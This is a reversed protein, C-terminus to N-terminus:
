RGDANPIGKLTGDPLTLALFQGGHMGNKLPRIVTSVKMGPTLTMPVWGQRALSSPAGLEIAWEETMGQANAVSLLLWSHPNSWQFETVTGELKIVKSDFVAFSHHALAPISTAAIAIGALGLAKLTM